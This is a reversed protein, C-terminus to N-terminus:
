KGADSALDVLAQEIARKRNESESEVWRDAGMADKDLVEVCIDVRPQARENKKPFEDFVVRAMLALGNSSGHFITGQWVVRTNM